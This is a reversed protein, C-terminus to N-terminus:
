GVKAFRPVAVGNHMALSIFVGLPRVWVPSHPTKWARYVIMTEDSETHTAVALVLYITGKKYHRYKQGVRVPCYMEHKATLFTM